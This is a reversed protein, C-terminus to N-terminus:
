VVSKRDITSVMVDDCFYQVLTTAGTFLSSIAVGALVMTAPTTGRLRALGLIVVTTAIGGLFACITILYPNTITVAAASGSNVQIGAGLYVIAVAAGFSAGQSVGLTSASALPNRLVNQMICGSMALAVGVVVGTAIRPMRVNWVIAQSQVTGGGVLTVILETFKLGSSGVMLSLLCSAVLLLVLGIVIGWKRAIYDSYSNNASQLSAMIYDVKKCSTM